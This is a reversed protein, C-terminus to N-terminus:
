PTRFSWSAPWALPTGDGQVRPRVRWYYSIGPELPAGAPVAYSNPPSSVGGHILASYVMATAIAPDTNFTADKSLQLEYYFVDSRSSAWHLAPTRTAVTVGQAPAAPSVISGAVAPSRFSAEAWPSWSPDDLGM